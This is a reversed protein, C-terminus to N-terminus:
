WDRSEKAAHRNGGPRYYKRLMENEEQRAQDLILNSVDSNLAPAPASPPPSGPKQSGEPPPQRHPPTSPPHLARLVIEYNVRADSMAPNVVLVSRYCDLAQQLLRTKEAGAPSGFASMALANGENYCANSNIKEAATSGSRVLHFREAAKRYHKMRFETGALNFQTEQQLLGDPYRELLANYMLAAEAYHASGHLTNAERILMYQRVTSPLTSMSFLMVLASVPKMM